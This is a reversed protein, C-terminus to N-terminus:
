ANGLSARAIRWMGGGAACLAFIGPADHAPGNMAGPDPGVPLHIVGPMVTPDSRLVIRLLGAESTLLASDGDSFGSKACTSPNIFGQGEAPRLGSEQFVKSLIPSVQATAAAAKVGFPMVAVERESGVRGIARGAATARLRDLAATSLPALRQTRPAHESGEDVWVGGAELMAFMREPSGLSRVAMSGDPTRVSGKGEGHLATVRQKLVEQMSSGELGAGPSMRGILEVPDTAGGPQLFLPASLALSRATADFPAPIDEWGEFPAPGPILLDARRSLGALFPSLSVVLSAGDKMKPELAEWPLACGSEAGDLILVGVSHDPLDLVHEPAPTGPDGRVVLGGEAGVSGLLMNLMVIANQEESGLPGAAADGGGVVLAPRRVALCRATELIAESSLGTIGAGVEPSFEAALDTFARHDQGPDPVSRERLLVHCLALALAAETGPKLPLWRDAAMATRSMRTEAQIIFPDGSGAHRAALRMMRGPTGWGDFLPTGFSLITRSRELDLGFSGGSLAMASQVTGDEISPAVVYRGNPVSALWERYLGSVTRGPRQDLLAVAGGSSALAGALIGAAEEKSVPSSETVGRRHTRRLPQVARAPHYPLHHAALGVACLTGCGHYHGPIGSLSVPVGNICRARVGCGAPCLTCTSVRVTAEGGAPRPIWPWNQTWIATDDLSKWPVPSVLIGATAGAAFKLIDRRTMKM